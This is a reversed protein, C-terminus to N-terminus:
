EESAVFRKVYQPVILKVEHGAKSFERAWYSAGGRAVPLHAPDTAQVKRLM